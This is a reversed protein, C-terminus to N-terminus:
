TGKLTVNLGVITKVVLNSEAFFPLTRGPAHRQTVCNRYARVEDSIEKASEVWTKRDTRMWKTGVEPV